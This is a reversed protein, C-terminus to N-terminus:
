FFLNDNSEGMEESFYRSVYPAPKRNPMQYTVKSKRLVGKSVVKKNLSKEVREVIKAMGKKLKYSAKSPKLGAKIREQEKDYKAVKDYGEKILKSSNMPSSSSQIYRKLKSLNPKSLYIEKKENNTSKRKRKM